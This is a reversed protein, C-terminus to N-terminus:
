LSMSVKKILKTNAISKITLRLMLNVEDVYDMLANLSINFHAVQFGSLYHSILNKPKGMTQHCQQFICRAWINFDILSIFRRSHYDKLVYSIILELQRALKMFNKHEVELFQLKQHINRSM